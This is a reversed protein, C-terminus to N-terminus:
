SGLYVTLTDAIAAAGDLLMKRRAAPDQPFTKM